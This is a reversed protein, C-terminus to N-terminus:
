KKEEKKEEEFKYFPIVLAATIVNCVIMIVAASIENNYLPQLIMSLTLFVGSAFLYFRKGNM